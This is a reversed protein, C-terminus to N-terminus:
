ESTRTSYAQWKWKGNDFSNNEDKQCRKQKTSREPDIDVRACMQHTFWAKCLAHLSHVCVFFAISVINNSANDDRSDEDSWQSSDNMLNQNM